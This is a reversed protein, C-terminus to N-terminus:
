TRNNIWNVLLCGAIAITSTAVRWIDPRTKDCAVWLLGVLVIVGITGMVIKKAM